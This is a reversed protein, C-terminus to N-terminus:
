ATLAALDANSLRTPFLLLQKIPGSSPGLPTNGLSIRSLSAPISCSTDTTSVQVGDVFFASNNNAYGLAMKFSGTTKSITFQAQIVAGVVIAAILSGTEGKALYMSNDYTSGNDITLLIENGSASQIDVQIEWFITGETQGILASASTKQALDAGRTVAATTTPILSTAYAGVEIQAGWVFIGSTGNGTYSATGNATAPACRMRVLTGSATYTVSCRYWGNGVSTISATASGGVTGITGNSLNFYANRGGASDEFLFLFSREAAKAYVSITHAVGSVSTPTQGIFHQSNNTDEVIKDATIAGDPATTANATVTANLNASWAADDFASSQLVLNTRSPELLLKPCTSNLYDLRPVNIAVSEILGASNVRTATTSRTFALQGDTTLPKQAYVKSAKYGSPVVVLSALDYFPTSM